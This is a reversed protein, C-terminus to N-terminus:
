PAHHPNEESLIRQVLQLLTRRDFPKQLFPITTMLAPDRPEASMCLVRTRPHRRTVYEALQPGTMGPMQTDTILLHIPGSHHELIEIAGSSNQSELVKYGGGALFTQIVRRFEDTDDVLLITVAGSEHGVRCPKM